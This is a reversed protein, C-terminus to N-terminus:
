NGSLDWPENENALSLDYSMSEGNHGSYFARMPWEKTVHNGGNLPKKKKEKSIILM